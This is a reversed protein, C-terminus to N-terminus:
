AHVAEVEEFLTVALTNRQKGVRLVIFECPAAPAIGVLAVLRGADHEERPTTVEDCRVFFSEEPTAGKFAGREHFLMLLATITAAITARTQQDNPEFVAWRLLVELGKKVLLVVRVINIFRWYFDGSLTRGGGIVPPRGFEGRIVNLGAVNFEGHDPDGLQRSVDTVGDLPLNGPARHVGWAVDTRAIAGTVHGCAPIRRTPATRRPEIVDLWPFYLAGYRTEFRARWAVIEERSVTLESALRLPPSLVAFRDGMAECHELLSSQMRAIDDESFESPLEGPPLPQHVERRPSPPPCWVCPNVDPPPVPEYMPDPEPRILVDPMAVLAIEEIATLTQLGRQKRRKAFDSDGPVVPEGIFDFPALTTLGDTGGSLMLPVGPTFAIPEPILSEDVLVDGQDEDPPTIVIPEAPRPLDSVEEDKEDRLWYPTYSPANLVRPAYRPHGPVFHLDRYVARVVGAERVTLSHAVRTIRVPAALALGTVERDTPLAHQRNPHVWYLRRRDADVFSVVRFAKFPVAGIQEIRVLAGREFQAVASVTAYRAAGAGPLGIATAGSEGGVDLTLASGWTGPSSAHVRCLVRGATDLVAVSAARAGGAADMNAVRVVWCRRGGNEFFGRVAYALYGAGTFEGFHASFQRFSEVPVPTDLPGRRAIGVFAAIDTRLVVPPPGLADAREVYVAPRTYKM